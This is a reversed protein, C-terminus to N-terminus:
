SLVKSLTTNKKGDAAIHTRSLELTFPLDASGWYRWEYDFGPYERSDAFEKIKEVVETIKLM